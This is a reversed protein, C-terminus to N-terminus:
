VSTNTDLVLQEKKGKRYYSIYVIKHTGYVTRHDFMYCTNFAISQGTYLMEPTFLFQAILRIRKKTHLSCPKAISNSIGQRGLTCM